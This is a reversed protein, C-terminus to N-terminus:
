KANIFKNFAEESILWIRKRGRGVVRYNAEIDGASLWRYVTEMTVGIFFAVEKPTLWRGCNFEPQPM